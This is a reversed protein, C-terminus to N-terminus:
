VSWFCLVFIWFASNPTTNVVRCLVWLWPTIILSSAAHRWAAAASAAQHSHCKYPVTPQCYLCNYCDWYWLKSKRAVRYVHLQVAAATALKRYYIIIHLLDYSLQNVASLTIAIRSVKQAV